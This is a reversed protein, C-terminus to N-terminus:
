YRKSYARRFFVPRARRVFIVRNESTYVAADVSVTGLSRSPCETNQEAAERRLYRSPVSPLLLRTADMKRQEERSPIRVVDDGYLAERTRYVMLALSRKEYELAGTRRIRDMWNPM